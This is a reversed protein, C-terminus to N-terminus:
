PHFKGGGVIVYDYTAGVGPTGVSSGLVKQALVNEQLPQDIPSSTATVARVGLSLLIARASILMTSYTPTSWSDFLRHRLQSTSIAFTNLNCYNVLQVLDNFLQIRKLGLKAVDSPHHINVSQARCDAGAVNSM